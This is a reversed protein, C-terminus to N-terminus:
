ELCDLELVIREIENTIIESWGSEGLLKFERLAFCEM